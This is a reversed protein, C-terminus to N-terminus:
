EEVYAWFREPSSLSGKASSYMVGGDSECVLNNM